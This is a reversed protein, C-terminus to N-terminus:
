DAQVRTLITADGSKKLTYVLDGISGVVQDAGSGAAKEYQLSVAGTTPVGTTVELTGDKIKGITPTLGKIRDFEAAGAIKVGSIGIQSVGVVDSAIQITVENYDYRVGTFKIEAM